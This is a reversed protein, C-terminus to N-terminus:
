HLRIRHTLDGRPPYLDEALTCPFALTHPRSYSLTSPPGFGALCPPDCFIGEDLLRVKFLQSAAVLEQNGGWEAEGRMRGLYADFSEDDEMYPEFTERNSELHDM